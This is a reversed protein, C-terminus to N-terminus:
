GIKGKPAIVPQLEVLVTRDLVARVIRCVLNL